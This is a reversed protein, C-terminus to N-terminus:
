LADTFTLQECGSQQKLFVKIESMYTSKLIEQNSYDDYKMKTDLHAVLIGERDLSLKGKLPRLDHIPM